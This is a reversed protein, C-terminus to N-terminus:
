SRRLRLGVFALGLGLGMLVLGSGLPLIRVMPETGTATDSAPSRSAGSPVPVAERAGPARRTADAGPEKPVRMGDAADPAEPLADVGAEKPEETRAGDGLGSSEPVTNVERRDAKSGSDRQGGDHGGRPDAKGSEGSKRPDGTKETEESGETTEPM